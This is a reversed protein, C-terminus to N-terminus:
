STPERAPRAVLGTRRKDKLPYGDGQITVVTSHHLVRDLM